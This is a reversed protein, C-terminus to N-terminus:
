WPAELVARAVITGISGDFEPSGTTRLAVVSVLVLGLIAGLVARGHRDWDVPLLPVALLISAMATTVAILVVYSWEPFFLGRFVSAGRFVIIGFIMAWLDNTQVDLEM